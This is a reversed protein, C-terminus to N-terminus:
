RGLWRDLFRFTEQGHITHPGNFFEIQAHDAHGLKSYHRRTRAFEYAVWEDCSVGDDHGREVMFPRPFILWSMEAYNFTQALNWEVMDYEVTHLYGYPSAADVTKWVWENFDASCISLCYGPLVAPVRMATKGGYSLGYFAIRDPDVTPLSQLWQLIVEHQRIIVSWLSLGLPWARQCLQRFHTGGIYPNQPAFIIYGLEALRAAYGHYAPHDLSPDAVDSPRGELGHQCVVVPQRQGPPLNKPVLLIGSAFVDPFVDIVVEWGSFSATDYLLRSRPNPPLTAPPLRGLIDDWFAERYARATAAFADASSFDANKWYEHRASQAHRMLHQTDDLLTRFHRAQSEDHRTTATDGDATTVAPTAPQPLAPSRQLPVGHALWSDGITHIAFSDRSGTPTAPWLARRREATLQARADHRETPTPPRLSGPAGGGADTLVVDPWHADLVALPRPAVLSALEPLGFSRLLGVVTRDLPQEWLSNLDIFGGDIAVSSVDTSAAAALLALHGGDGSGLLHVTAQPRVSRLASAAALAMQIEYGAMSRGLETAARWIVERQSYRFSRGDPSHAGTRRDLLPLILVTAGDAALRNAWQREVPLGPEVGIAVAASTGCDPLVIVCRDDGRVLWGTARMERLVPWEVEVISRGAVEGVVAIEKFRQNPPGPELGLRRRLTERTPQQTERWDDLRAVDPLFRAARSQAVAATEREFFRHIGDVMVAALDDPAELEGTGSLPAGALRAVGLGLCVTGMLSSGGMYRLAPVAPGFIRLLKMM